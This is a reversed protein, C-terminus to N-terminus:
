SGSVTREILEKGNEFFAREYFADSLDYHSLTEIESERPLILNPFDSGYLIRERYRELAEKGQDYSGRGEFERFFAFATDLYLRPYEDLIDMFGKYEYAGMHAVIAPLEPYRKLLKRFHNLGVYENGVPGTGAHFLLYKGKDMVMEYMPFLREDHPYFRQVLLQLKIGLVRPHSLVNEAIELADKDDPHYAAFCYLEDYNGLIKLNWENLGKAVGGKHAYNSYAIKEVGKEHLYEICREHYMRYLVDWRYNSVFAEWVADFMRDPFLHVHFDIIKEPIAM